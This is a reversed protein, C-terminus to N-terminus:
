DPFKRLFLGAVIASTAFSVALPIPFGTKPLSQVDGKSFDSTSITTDLSSPMPSPVIITDQSSTINTVTLKQPKFKQSIILYGIVFAVLILGAIILKLRGENEM